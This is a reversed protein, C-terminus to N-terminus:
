KGMRYFWVDGRPSIKTATHDKVDFCIPEKYLPSIASTGPMEDRIAQFLKEMPMEYGDHHNPIFLKPNFLKIPVMTYPVQTHSHGGAYAVTAVDTGGIRQMAAEIEPTNLTSASDYFIVRFDKGFTFLYVVVGQTRILADMSGRAMIAAKKATEEATLPVNDWTALNYAQLAAGSAPTPGQPAPLPGNIGSHNVHIPEVTFGDFKYVEGSNVYHVQSASLPLIGQEPVGTVALKEYAFRPAYVKAGTQRAVQAADSMHDGHAHGLFLADVKNIESPDLVKPERPNVDFYASLLIVQGRFTLEINAEGLWRWTLLDRSKAAPGGAVAPTMNTCPNGYSWKADKLDFYPNAFGTSVIFLFSLVALVYMGRKM